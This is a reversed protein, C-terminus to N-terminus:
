LLDREDEIEGFISELVDEMTVIGLAEHRRDVVVAIHTKQSKFKRFLSSLSLHVPVYLPKASIESISSSFKSPKLFLIDKSYLIGTITTRSKDYIPVRSFKQNQIESLAQQITTSGPLLFAEQLPTMIEQCHVDDLRFVKQILKRESPEITGEKLAEDILEVFDQEDLQYLSKSIDPKQAAKKSVSRLVLAVIHDLTWLVPFLIKYIYFLVKSNLIAFLRNMRAAVVKPTIEGFIVMIPTAILTSLILTLAWKLHQPVLLMMTRHHSEVFATLTNAIAINATENIILIVILLRTPRSLLLTIREYAAKQRDKLRRLQFRDLSFLATESSAAFAAMAILLIVFSM